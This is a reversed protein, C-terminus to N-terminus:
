TQEGEPLASKNRFNEIEDEPVRARRAESVYDEVDMDEPVSIRYQDPDEGLELLLATVARNYDDLDSKLKANSKEVFSNRHVEAARGLANAMSQSSGGRRPVNHLFSLATRLESRAMADVTMAANSIACVASYALDKVKRQQKVARDILWFFGVGWVLLIVILTLHLWDLEM